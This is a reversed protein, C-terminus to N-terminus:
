LDEGSLEPLKGPRGLYILEYNQASNSPNVVLTLSKPGSNKDAQWDFLFSTNGHKIILNQIGSELINDPYILSFSINGNAREFDFFTLNYTYSGSMNIIDKNEVIEAYDFSGDENLSFAARYFNTTGAERLVYTGTIPNPITALDCSVVLMIISILAALVKKM